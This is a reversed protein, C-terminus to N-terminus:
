SGTPSTIGTAQLHTGSGPFIRKALWQDDKRENIPLVPFFGPSTLSPSANLSYSPDPIPNPTKATQNPPPATCVIHPPPRRKSAIKPMLWVEIRAGGNCAVCLGTALSSAGAPPPAAGFLYIRHILCLLYHAQRGSWPRDPALGRTM